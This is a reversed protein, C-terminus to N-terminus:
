LGSRQGMSGSLSCAPNNSLLAVLKSCIKKWPLFTQGLPIKKGKLFGMSLAKARVSTIFLFCHSLFKKDKGTVTVFLFLFHQFKKNIVTDYQQQWPHKTYNLKLPKENQQQKQSLFAYQMSQNLRDKYPVQLISFIKGIFIANGTPFTFWRSAERDRHLFQM